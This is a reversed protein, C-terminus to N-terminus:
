DEEGEQFLEELDEVMAGYAELKGKYYYHLPSNEKETIVLFKYNDRLKRYTKILNEM